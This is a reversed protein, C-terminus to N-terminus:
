RPPRSRQQWQAAEDTRGLRRASTALIAATARGTPGGDPPWQALCETHLTPGLELVKQDQHGTCLVQLMGYRYSLRAKTHVDTTAGLRQELDALLPLAPAAGRAKCVVMMLNYLQLVCEPHLRGQNRERLQLARESLEVAAADDGNDILASGLNSCAIAARTSDPGDLGERLALSERFLAIARQLTAKDDTKRARDQLFSALNNISTAYSSSQRGHVRETAAQTTEYCLRAEEWKSEIGDRLALDHLLSALDNTATLVAPADAGLLRIRGDIVARMGPEAEVRRGCDELTRAHQHLAELTLRHDPGFAAQIRSLADRAQMEADRHQGASMTCRVQELRTKLADEDAPGYQREQAALITALQARALEIEGATRLEQALEYRSHLTERAEPGLVEVRAAVAREFCDRAARNRGLAQNARGLVHHVAGSTRTPATFTTAVSQMAKDFVAAATIERGRAEEPTVALLLKEVLFDNIGSAEAKAARVERLAAQQVSITSVLGALSLWGATALAAHRRHWRLALRFPGPPRAQVPEGLRVARLDRAVDEATRYRCLLDKDLLVSLVAALDRSADPRLQRLPPPDSTLIAQYLQELTPAAFPRQLTLAEFLTVGFAWLDGQADGIRRRGDLREPPLYQPTGFVDGTRTLAPTDDDTAIALGFDLLVPAGREDHMVNAPKLDRHVVGAQHARHLTTALQEFFQLTPALPPPGSGESRRQELRQALTEGAVYKMALFLHEGDRGVEYIPCIGSDDLRAATTAERQLRLEQALSTLGRPLVKLAVERQLRPDYALYVTAQGGRGLERRLEYPGVQQEARAEAPDLLPGLEAAIVAEFGPHEAQYDGLSRVIGRARDAAFSQLVANLVAQESNEDHSM